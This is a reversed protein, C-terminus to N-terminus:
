NAKGVTQGIEFTSELLHLKDKVSRGNAIDLMLKFAYNGILEEDQNISTVKIKSISNILHHSANTDFGCVSVDEPVRLGREELAQISGYAMLDNFCLIATYDIDVLESIINNAMDYQYNATLISDSAVSLGNESFAQELGERRYMNNVSDKYGVLTLIRKHGMKLLHSAMEYTARKYDSAVTYVNSIPSVQQEDLIVIPLRGSNNYENLIMKSNRSALFIGDIFRDELRNLELLELAMDNNSDCVIINYGEKSAARIIAKIILSYFANSVDPVIVAFTKSKQTVLSRGVENRSYKMKKAVDLVLAVTDTGIEKTKGNLVLSVTAISVGCERAIDKITVKKM